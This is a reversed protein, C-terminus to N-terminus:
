TTSKSPSKLACWNTSSWSVGPFRYDIPLRAGDPVTEGSVVPQAVMATLDASVSV